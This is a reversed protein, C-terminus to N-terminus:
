GTLAAPRVLALARRVHRSIQESRRASIAGEAQARSAAEAVRALVAKRRLEGAGIGAIALLATSVATRDGRVLGNILEVDERALKVPSPALSDTRSRRSFADARVQRQREHKSLNCRTQAARTMSQM